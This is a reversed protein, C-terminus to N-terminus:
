CLANTGNRAPSGGLNDYAPARPNGEIQLVPSLTGDSWVYWAGLMGNGSQYMRLCQVGVVSRGKLTTTTTAATTTTVAADSDPSGWVAGLVLVVLFGVAVVVAMLKTM